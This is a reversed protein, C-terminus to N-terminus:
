KLLRKLNRIARQLIRRVTRASCGMIAAVEHAELGDFHTLVVATEEKPELQKLLEICLYRSELGKGDPFPVLAEDLPLEAYFGRRELRKRQDLARSRSLERIWAAFSKHPDFKAINRYMEALVIQRVDEAEVDSRLIQRSIRFIIQSYRQVVTAWAEQNGRLLETILASEHPDACEGESRLSV